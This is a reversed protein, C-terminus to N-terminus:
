SNKNISYVFALVEAVAQYLAPPIMDGIETTDYLGRALAPNEVTQVSSERAIEKIRM